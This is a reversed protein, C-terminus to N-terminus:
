SLGQILGLYPLFIGAVILLLLVGAILLVGYCWLSRLWGPIGVALTLLCLMGCDVLVGAPILVLGYRTFFRSSNIILASLLPLKLGFEMFMKDFVPVVGIFVTLLAILAVGHVVLWFLLISLPKSPHSLNDM